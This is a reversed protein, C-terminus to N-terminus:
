YFRFQHHDNPGHVTETEHFWGLRSGINPALKITVGQGFQPSFFDAM